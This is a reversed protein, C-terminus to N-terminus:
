TDSARFAVSATYTIFWSIDNLLMKTSDLSLWQSNWELARMVSEMTRETLGSYVPFEPRLISELAPNELSTHAIQHSSALHNVTTTIRERQLVRELQTWATTAKSYGNEQCCVKMGTSGVEMTSMTQQGVGKRTPIRELESGLSLSSGTSSTRVDALTGSREWVNHCVDCSGATSKDGIM